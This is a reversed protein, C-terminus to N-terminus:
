SRGEVFLGEVVAQFDVEALSFLVPHSLVEALGGGGQGGDDDAGPNGPGGGGGGGGEGPPASRQPPQWTHAIQWREDEDIAADDHLARESGVHAVLGLEATELLAVRVAEM